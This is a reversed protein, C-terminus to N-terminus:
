KMLLKKIDITKMECFYKENVGKSKMEEVMGERFKELKAHEAIMEAEIEKGEKFKEQELTQRQLDNELIQQKLMNRLEANKKKTYEVEDKERKAMEAAQALTNYYEDQKEEIEREKAMQKEEEQRKRSEHLLDMNKKKKRAENLERQRQKRENEEAARRARIADIEAKKDMSKTQRDLMKKQLEVKKLQNIREEEERKRMTEDRKAQYALIMKEQEKEFAKKAEREALIEKNRRIIELQASKSTTKHKREKELDEEQYKKITDLMKRNEQDRAEEQLLKQHQREQIQKEIVKRDTIRKKIMEKEEKERTAIDNLRKMEMSLDMLREYEREEKEKLKKDELQKDRIAFAAARQKCTNLLNVIDESGKVNDSKIDENRESRKMCLDKESSGKKKARESDIKLMREKREKAKKEKCSSAVSVPVIEDKAISSRRLIVELEGKTICSVDNKLTNPSRKRKEGFLSEDITSGRSITRYRSSSSTAVSRLSCADSTAMTLVEKKKANREGEGKKHTRTNNTKM